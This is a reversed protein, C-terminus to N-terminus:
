PVRSGRQRPLTGSGQGPGARLLSALWVGDLLGTVDARQLWGVGRRAKLAKRYLNLRANCVGRNILLQTASNQESELAVDLQKIAAAHQGACVAAVFGDSM